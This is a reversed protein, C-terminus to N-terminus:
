SPIAIKLVYKFDTLQKVKIEPKISVTKLGDLYLLRYYQDLDLSCSSIYWTILIAFIKWGEIKDENKDL